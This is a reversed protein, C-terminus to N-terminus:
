INIIEIKSLDNIGLRHETDGATKIHVPERGKEKLSPLGKERRMQEIIKWGVTDIAVPDTSFLIGGYKITFSPKYGPGGEYQALLADCIYLKTKKSFVPMMNLDAIFPNCGNQHMKNPNDVAGFYNKLCLTVGAIEHDKMVSVNILATCITSAIKSVRSAVSGSITLESDYGVEDTGFCKVGRRLNIKYGANILEINLRDWIIINNEDVGALKLGSIIASIIEKRTSLNRGSITNIKIGVIDRKTFLKSWSEKNLKSSTLKLLSKNIMEKVITKNIKNGEWVDVNRAIIVKQKDKKEPTPSSILIIKELTKEAFLIDKKAFFGYFFTFFSIIRKIFSRRSQKM